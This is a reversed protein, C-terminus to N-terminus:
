KSVTSFYEILDDLQYFYRIQEGKAGKWFPDIRGLSDLVEGRIEADSYYNHLLGGDFGSMIGEVDMAYRVGSDDEALFLVTTYAGLLHHMDDYFQEYPPYVSDETTEPALFVLLKDGATFLPGSNESFSSSSNGEQIVVIENKIEGKLVTDVHARYLTHVFFDDEGLWDGITVIYVCDATEYAKAISYERDLELYGTIESKRVPPLVADKPSEGGAPFLKVAAFVAGFILLVAAAAAVAYRWVPRRVAARKRAARDLLADDINGVASLLTESTM